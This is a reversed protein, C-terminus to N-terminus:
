VVAMQASTTHAPATFRQVRATATVEIYVAVLGMAEIQKFMDNIMFAPPEELRKVDEHICFPIPKAGGQKTAAWVVGHQRAPTIDAGIGMTVTGRDHIADRIIYFGTVIVVLCIVPIFYNM